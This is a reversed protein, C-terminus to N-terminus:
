YVLRFLMRAMGDYMSSLYQTLAIVLACKPLSITKIFFIIQSVGEYSTQYIYFVHVYSNKLCCGIGVRELLV